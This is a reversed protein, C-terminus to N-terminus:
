AAREGPDSEEPLLIDMEPYFWWLSEPLAKLGSQKQIPKNRIFREMCFLVKYIIRAQVSPRIVDDGTYKKDDKAKGEKERKMMDKNTLYHNLRRLPHADGFQSPLINSVLLEVAEETKAPHARHSLLFAALVANSRIVSVNPRRDRYHHGLSALSGRFANFARSFDQDTRVPENTAEFAILKMSGYTYHRTPMTIPDFEILGMLEATEAAPRVYQTDAFRIDDDDAELLMDFYTFTDTIFTVLVRHQGNRLGGKQLMLRDGGVGWDGRSVIWLMKKINPNKIGRQRPSNRILLRLLNCRDVGVREKSTRETATFDMPPTITFRPHEMLVKRITGFTGRDMKIPIFIETEGDVSRSLQLTLGLPSHTVSQITTVRAM